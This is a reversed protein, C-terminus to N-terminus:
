RMKQKVFGSGHFVQSPDPKTEFQRSPGILKILMVKFPVTGTHRNWFLM